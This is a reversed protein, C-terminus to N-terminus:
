RRELYTEQEPEEMDEIDVLDYKRALKVRGHTRERILIGLHVAYCKATLPSCAPASNVELIWSDGHDDLIMDVAGFDLGLAKVSQIAEAKRRNHINRNPARYRYGTEYNRVYPNTAALEPNDCYKGQVRIVKNDVVHLRYEIAPKIYISYFDHHMKEPEYVTKRPYVVIGKGKSLFNARGMFAHGCPVGSRFGYYNAMDEKTRFFPITQVGANRLAEFTAIKNAALRIALHSNITTDCPPMDRSSGWRVLVDITDMPTRIGFKEIGLEAAIAKGTPRTSKHYALFSPIM